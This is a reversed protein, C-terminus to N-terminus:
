TKDPSWILCFTETVCLVLDVNYSISYRNSYMKLFILTSFNRIETSQPTINQLNVIYCFHDYMFMSLDPKWMARPLPMSRYVFPQIKQMYFRERCLARWLLLSEIRQMCTISKTINGISAAERRWWRCVLGYRCLKSWSQGTDHMLDIYRVTVDGPLRKASLCRTYIPRQGNYSEDTYIFVQPM